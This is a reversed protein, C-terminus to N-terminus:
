TSFAGIEKLYGGKFFIHLFDAKPTAQQTACSTPWACSIPM